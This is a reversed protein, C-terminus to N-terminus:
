LRKYPYQKRCFWDIFVLIVFAFTKSGNWPNHFFFPLSFLLEYAFAYYFLTFVTYYSLQGLRKLSTHYIAVIFLTLVTGCDTLWTGIGTSFIDNRIWYLEPPLEHRHKAYGAIIPFNSCGKEVYTGNPYNMFRESFNIFGQGFYSIISDITSNQNYDNSFRLITILLFIGGLLGLLILFLLKVKRKVKPDLHGRTIFFMTVFVFLYKLIYERGGVRLSIVASCLSSLLLLALLFKKKSNYILCYFFLAMPLVSFVKGFYSIYAILSGTEVYEENLNARLEQSDYFLTHWDIDGVGNIFYVFSLCICVISLTYIISNPYRQLHVQSKKEYAKFPYIIMWLTFLHYVVAMVSMKKISYETDFEKLYISSLGSLFFILLIGLFLTNNKERHEYIIWLGFFLPYLVVLWM